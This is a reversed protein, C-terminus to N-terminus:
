RVLVVAAVRLGMHAAVIVPAVLESSVAAWGFRAAMQSEYEGVARDDPAGAVVGCVVIIGDEAAGPALAAEPAYIGDM